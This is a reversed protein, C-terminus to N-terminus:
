DRSGLSKVAEWFLVLFPVLHEFVYVQPSCKIILGYYCHSAIESDYGMGDLIHTIEQDLMNVTHMSPWRDSLLKRLKECWSDCDPLVQTCTVTM